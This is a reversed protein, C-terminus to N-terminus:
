NFYYHVGLCVTIGSIGSDLDSDEVDGSVDSFRYGVEWNFGLEPMEQFRYEAGFLPGFALIDADLDTDSHDIGFDAQGYGLEFGFYFQSNEKQIAAYMVKGDIFWLDGDGGYSNSGTDIDIDLTAQQINGEFGWKSNDLWARISAGQFLEGLYMAQYGAGWTVEASAVSSGLSMLVLVAAAGMCLKKMNTGKKDHVLFGVGGAFTYKKTRPTGGQTVAKWVVAATVAESKTVVHHYGAIESTSGRFIVPM